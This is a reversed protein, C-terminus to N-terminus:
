MYHRFFFHLLFNFFFGVFCPWSIMLWSNIMSILNGLTQYMSPLMCTQSMGPLSSSEAFWGNLQLILVIFPTTWLLPLHCPDLTLLRWPHTLHCSAPAPVCFSIGPTDPSSGGPSLPLNNQSFLPFDLQLCRNTGPWIAKPALYPYSLNPFM